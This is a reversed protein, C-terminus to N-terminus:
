DTLPKIDSDVLSTLECVIYANPESDKKGQIVSGDSDDFTGVNYLAFDSPFQVFLEDKYQPDKLLQTIRRMATAENVELVPTNFVQAKKDYLSIFTKIAM